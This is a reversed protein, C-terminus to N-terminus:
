KNSILAYVWRDSVGLEEAVASRSWGAELLELARRRKELRPMMPVYVRSVTPSIAYFLDGKDRGFVSIAYDRLTECTVQRGGFRRRILRAGDEGLAEELAEVLTDMVEADSLSVHKNM